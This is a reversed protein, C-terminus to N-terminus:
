AILLADFATAFVPQSSQLPTFTVNFGATQTKVNVSVNCPANPEVQVNYTAPLEAFTNVNVSVPAGIPQTSVQGAFGTGAGGSSTVAAGNAYGTGGTATFSAVNWTSATLQFGTGSGSTSGQSVPSSPLATYSGANQLVYSNVGYKAATMTFTAGSGGGTTSVQTLGGATVNNSTFSGGNVITVTAVGTGAGGTLTAVQLVLGNQSTIQDGVNYGNGATAAAPATVAKTTQIEAIAQQSATGGTLTVTDGPAYTAGAAALASTALAMSPALAGGTGGAAALTPVSTFGSGPNLVAGGTMEGTPGPIAQNTLIGLKLRGPDSLATSGNLVSVTHLDFAM